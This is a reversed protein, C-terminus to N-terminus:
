GIRRSFALIKAANSQKNLFAKKGTENKFKCFLLILAAQLSVIGKNVFLRTNFLNYYHLGSYNESAELNRRYM